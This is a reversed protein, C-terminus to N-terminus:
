LLLLDVLLSELINSSVLVAVPVARCCYQVTCGDSSLLHGRGSGVKVEESARWRKDYFCFVPLQCVFYPSSGPRAACLLPTITILADMVPSSPSSSTPGVMGDIPYFVATAKLGKAVVILLGRKEEPSGAHDFLCAIQWYM